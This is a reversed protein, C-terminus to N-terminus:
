QPYHWVIRQFTQTLPLLSKLLFQAEINGGCTPSMRYRTCGFAFAVSAIAIGRAEHLAHAIEQGVRDLEGIRITLQSDLRVGLTILGHQAYGVVAGTDGGIQQRLNEIQEHLAFARQVTGLAAEADPQGDHLPQDLHV